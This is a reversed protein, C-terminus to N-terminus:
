GTQPLTRTENTSNNNNNHRVVAKEVKRVRTGQTLKTVLVDDDDTLYLVCNRNSEILSWKVGVDNADFYGSVWDVLDRRQEIDLPKFVIRWEFHDYFFKDRIVIKHDQNMLDLSAQSEPHTIGLVRFRKTNIKQVLRETAEATLFYFSVTRFQNRVKYENEDKPCLSALHNFFDGPVYGSMVSGIDVRFGFKGWFLKQTHQSHIGPYRGIM